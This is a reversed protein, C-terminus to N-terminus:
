VPLGRLPLSFHGGRELTVRVGGGYPGGPEELMHKALKKGSKEPRARGPLPEASRPTATVERAGSIFAPPGKGSVGGFHDPKGPTGSPPPM